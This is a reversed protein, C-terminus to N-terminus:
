PCQQVASDWDLIWLVAVTSHMSYIHTDNPISIKFKNSQQDNVTTTM